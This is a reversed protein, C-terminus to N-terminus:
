ASCNSVGLLEFLDVVNNSVSNLMVFSCLVFLSLPEHIEMSMYLVSCLTNDIAPLCVKTATVM